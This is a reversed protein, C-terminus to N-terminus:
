APRSPGHPRPEASLRRGHRLARRDVGVSLDIGGSLIVFTMGIALIANIAVHKVLISLNGSTLFEPSLVSFVVVLVVLAILARLRLLLDAIGAVPPRALRTCACRRWARRCRRRRRRWRTTPRTPRRRCGGHNPRAGDRPHAHGRRPGRGPGVLRVRRGLGDAALRRMSELIEAKAGVDVGRTPEDMLLVRPRSMAARAIVVKQQNGGSLSGMAAAPSATKIRLDEIFRSAARRERSPALYGGPSLEDLSSLTMNQEVSLTGVLRVGQSGRAGDRHRRRRAREGAAVAVPRGDLRVEGTADAHVGLVAELLETRGAGMLGYLGVIEGRPLM